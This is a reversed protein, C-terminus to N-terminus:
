LSQKQLAFLIFTYALEVEHWEVARDYCEFNLSGTPIFHYRSAQTIMTRIEYETFIHVSCGFASKGQTDIRHQWYDTSIILYGKPKLLRYAEAIFPEFPVGHEIVSLSCIIDFYEGTFNTRTCDGATYLISGQQFDHLFAINIVHLNYYGYYELWRVLPSYTEGGADLIAADRNTTQLILELTALADWNKPPDNHPALGREEVKQRAWLYDAKYKLVSNIWNIPSERNHM